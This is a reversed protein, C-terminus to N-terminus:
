VLSVTGFSIGFEVNNDKLFPRFEYGAPKWNFKLSSGPNRKFIKPSNACTRFRCIKLVFGASHVMSWFGLFFIKLDNRCKRHRNRTFECPDFNKGNKLLFGPSYDMTKFMTSKPLDQFDSLVRQFPELVRIFNSKLREVSETDNEPSNALTSIQGNKLLFGPSYGMTKFITSKPLDQLDSWVRQFAELVGIFNNKLRQPVTQTSKPHIRLPRFKATKSCFAQAIAWPKSCPRNQYTRSNARFARM